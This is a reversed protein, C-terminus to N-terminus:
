YRLTLNVGGGANINEYDFADSTANGESDNNDYSMFTRVSAWNNFYYAVSLGLTHLMDTRINNNTFHEYDSYTFRYYPQAILNPIIQQTYTLLFSHEMRNNANSSPFPDVSTVHTYNNYGLSVAVNDNIPFVREIGIHPVLEKYFEQYDVMPPEHGLLRTADLGISASWLQAFRYTADVFLTQADFDLSNLGSPLDQASTQDMGYNYWQHRFGLRPALQGGPVEFPTPAFAVQVTSVLVGTDTNSGPTTEKTLFANSTYYYQSDVSAEVWQRRPMAKLLFQPGVDANEGPYLEPAQEPSMEKEEKMKRMQEQQRQVDQYQQVSSPTQASVPVSALVGSAALILLFKKM